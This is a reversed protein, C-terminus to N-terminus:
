GLLWRGRCLPCSPSGTLWKLICGDHWLCSHCQECADVTQQGLELSELCIVCEEQNAAEDSTSEDSSNTTSLAEATEIGTTSVEEPNTSLEPVQTTHLPITTRESPSSDDNASSNMVESLAQPAQGVNSTSESPTPQHVTPSPGSGNTRQTVLLNAVPAGQESTTGSPGPLNSSSSVSNNSSNETISAASTLIPPPPVISRGNLAQSTQAQREATQQVNRLSALVDQVVQLDEPTANRLISALTSNLSATTERQSSTSSPSAPLLGSSTPTQLPLGSFLPAPSPSSPSSPVTWVRISDARRGMSLGSTTSNPVANPPFTRSSNTQSINQRLESLWFRATSEVQVEDKAHHRTCHVRTAIQLLLECVNQGISWQYLVDRRLKEATARERQNSAPLHCHRGYRELWKNCTHPVPNYISCCSM